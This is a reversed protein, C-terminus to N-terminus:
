RKAPCFLEENSWGANIRWILTSLELGALKAADSACLEQGKFNVKINSRRNKSQEEKTAWRCNTPEYGADNDIRDLTHRRSPRPGMDQLFLSFDNWRECVKIGRGGYDSYAAIRSNNCRARMGM